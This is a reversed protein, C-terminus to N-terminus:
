QLTKDFFDAIDPGLTKLFAARDFGPPDAAM